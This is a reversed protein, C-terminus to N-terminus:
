QSGIIVDGYGDGNIDGAASVCIEFYDFVSEGTFTVNPSNNM